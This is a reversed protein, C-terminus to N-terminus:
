QQKNLITQQELFIKKIRKDSKMTNPLSNYFELLEKKTECSTIKIEADEITMVERADDTDRNLDRGFLRGLSKAANKIAEAKAHPLDKQVTNPIKKSVDTVDVPKKKGDEGTESRLQIQTAGVGIREIWVNAV